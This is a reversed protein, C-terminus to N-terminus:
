NLYFLPLLYDMILILINIIKNLHLSVYYIKTICGLSIHILPNLFYINLKKYTNFKYKHPTIIINYIKKSYSTNNKSFPSLLKSHNKNNYKISPSPCKKLFKIKTILPFTNYRSLILYTQNNFPYIITKKYLIRTSTRM